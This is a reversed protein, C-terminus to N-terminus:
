YDKIDLLEIDESINALVFKVLKNNISNKSNSAAFGLVKM